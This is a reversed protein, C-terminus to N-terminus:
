NISLDNFMKHLNVVKELAEPLLEAIQDEIMSGIYNDLTEGFEHDIGSIWNEGLCHDKMEPQNLYVEVHINYYIWIHGYSLLRRRSYNAQDLVKIYADHKSFGLKCLDEISDINAPLFWKYSNSKNSINRISGEERQSSFTGLDELLTWPQEDEVLKVHFNFGNKEIIVTSEDELDALMSPTVLSTTVPRNIVIKASSALYGKARLKRYQKYNKM